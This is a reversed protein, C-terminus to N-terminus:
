KRGWKEITFNVCEQLNGSHVGFPVGIHFIVYTDHTIGESFLNSYKHLHNVVANNCVMGYELWMVVGISITLMTILGM